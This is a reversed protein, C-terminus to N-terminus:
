SKNRIYKDFYKDYYLRWKANFTKDESSMRHTSKSGELLQFLQDSNLGLLDFVLGFIKLTKLSAQSAFDCLRTMDLDGEHDQLKEIVLDVAYKSTRFHIIDVLAKEAFAIRATLNEISVTEWGAYLKEQTKIFRYQIPDLNVANYQRLSVSIYQDTFQDFM